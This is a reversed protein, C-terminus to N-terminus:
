LSHFFFLGIVAQAVKAESPFSVAILTRLQEAYNCSHLGSDSNFSNVVNEAIGAYRCSKTVNLCGHKLKISMSADLYSFNYEGRKKLLFKLVLLLCRM